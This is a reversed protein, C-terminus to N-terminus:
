LEQGHVGQYPAQGTYACLAYYEHKAKKALVFTFFFSSLLFYFSAKGMKLDKFFSTFKIQIMGPLLVLM